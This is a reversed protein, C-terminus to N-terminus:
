PFAKGLLGAHRCDLRPRGEQSALKGLWCRMLFCCWAWMRLQTLVALSKPGPQATGRSPAAQLRGCRAVGGVPRAHGGLQPSDCCSGRAPRAAAADADPSASVGSGAACCRDAASARGSTPLATAPASHPRPDQATSHGSLVAAPTLLHSAPLTTFTSWSLHHSHESSRSSPNRRDGQELCYSVQIASKASAAAASCAPPHGQMAAARMDAAPVLGIAWATSCM